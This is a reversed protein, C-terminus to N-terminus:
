KLPNTLSIEVRLGPKNDALRLPMHHLRAISAAMSLGLGNGPLMRSSDARYFPKLMDDHTHHPIGAGDDAVSLQAATLTLTIHNGGHRLANEILNALMQLLLQRDGQCTINPTVQMHLTKGDQEAVLQYSECLHTILDSLDVRAFGQRRAGSEIEAIRLLASFIELAQDLLAISSAAQPTSKQLAELEMRLRSLPTRLDHAIATSVHQVEGLLQEIREIMRNISTALMDFDDGSGSLPIRQSLDGGGIIEAIRNIKEIRRLFRRSVIHGGIIALLITTFTTVALGHLIVSQLEGIAIIEGAVILQYGDKLPTTLILTQGTQQWGTIHSPTSIKDFIATGQANIISYRLRNPPNSELRERIDHRLENMGDDRWDVLLQETEAHIREQMQTQLSQRIDFYMVTALACVSLMFISAYAFALRLHANYFLNPRM